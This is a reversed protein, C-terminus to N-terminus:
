PMLNWYRSATAFRKPNSTKGAPFKDKALAEDLLASFRELRYDLGISREFFWKSWSEERKGSLKRLYSIGSLPRYGARSVCESAAMDVAIEDAVDLNASDKTSQAKLTQSWLDESLTELEGPWAKAHFVPKKHRIRLERVLPRVLLYALEAENGAVDIARASLAM